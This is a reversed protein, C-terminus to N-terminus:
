EEEKYYLKYYKRGDPEVGQEIMDKNGHIYVHFNKDLKLISKFVKAQKKVAQPSIEFYDQLEIEHNERYQEDFNRFSKILTEDKFVEKEFEEKEFTEHTKFYDVSRNLLDIKDAKSLEFEGSLQKTVYNKTIGMFQNTQHFHNNIQTLGLFRERWYIAEEGRNQNDIVFVEFGEEKKTNLILCGKDFKNIDIGEKYNIEFSNNFQDVEFFGSKTETKFIGIADTIIGDIECNKFHCVYLEGPKIKPHVSNNYLHTAIDESTKHFLSTDLFIHGAYNYVENFELSSPHTFQFREQVEPFRSLFYDTLKQLLDDDIDLPQKSLILEQENNKNGIFHVSINTISTNSLNM